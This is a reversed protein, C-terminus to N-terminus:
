LGFRQNKGLAKSLRKSEGCMGEGSVGPRVACTPCRLRRVITFFANPQGIAFSTGAIEGSRASWVSFGSQCWNTDSASVRM